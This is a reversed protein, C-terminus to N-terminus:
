EQPKISAEGRAGPEVLGGSWGALGGSWRGAEPSSEIEPVRNGVAVLASKAAATISKKQQQLRNKQNDSKSADIKKYHRLM